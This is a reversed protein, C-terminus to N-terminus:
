VRAQVDFLVVVAAPKLPDTPVIGYTVGDFELKDGPKIETLGQTALPGAAVLFRQDTALVTGSQLQRWTFNVRVAFTNFFTPTQTPELESGSNTLRVIRAAMGGEQILEDADDRSEIYDWADVM